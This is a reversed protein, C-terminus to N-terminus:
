GAHALKRVGDPFTVEVRGQEVTTVVGIGFRPHSLADGKAVQTVGRADGAVRGGARDPVVAAASVSRVPNGSSRLWHIAGVAQRPPACGLRLSSRCRLRRFSDCAQRRIRHPNRGFDWSRSARAVKPYRCLLSNLGLPTADVSPPPDGCRRQPQALPSPKM